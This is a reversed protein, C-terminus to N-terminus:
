RVVKTFGAGSVNFDVHDGSAATAADMTPQGVLPVIYRNNLLETVERTGQEMTIANNHICDLRSMLFGFQSRDFSPDFCSDFLKPYLSSFRKYTTSCRTKLGQIQGQDTLQSVRETIDGVIRTIDANDM